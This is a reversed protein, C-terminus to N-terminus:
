LYNRGFVKFFTGSGCREDLEIQGLKKLKLNLQQNNHVGNCGTHHEKCLYVKVGWKESLERYGTGFVIHHEETPYRGCLFCGDERNNLM